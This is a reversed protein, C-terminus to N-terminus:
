AARAPLTKDTISSSHAARVWRQTPLRLQPSESRRLLRDGGEGARRSAFRWLTAADGKPVTTVARRENTVGRTRRDPSRGSACALSWRGARHPGYVASPRSGIPSTPRVRSVAGATRTSILLGADLLGTGGDGAPAAACGAPRGVNSALWCPVPLAGELTRVCSSAVSCQLRSAVRLVVWLSTRLRIVVKRMSTDALM